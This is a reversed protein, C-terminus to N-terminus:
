AITQWIAAYTTKKKGKASRRYPSKIAVSIIWCLCLIFLLSSYVELPWNM